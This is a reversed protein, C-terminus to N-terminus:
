RSLRDKALAVIERVLAEDPRHGFAMVPPRDVPHLLRAPADTQGHKEVCTVAVDDSVALPSRHFRKALFIYSKGAHITFWRRSASYRGEIPETPGHYLSDAAARAHTLSMMTYEGNPDATEIFEEHEVQGYLVHSIMTFRHDHIDGSQDIGPKILRRSWIHLRVEPNVGERVYGQLVGIGHHRWRVRDIWDLALARMSHIANNVLITTHTLPPVTYTM